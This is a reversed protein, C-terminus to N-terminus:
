FLLDTARTGESSWVVTEDDTAPKLYEPDDFTNNIPQTFEESLASTPRTVGLEFGAGSTKVSTYNAFPAAGLIIFLINNLSRETLKNDLPVSTLLKSQAGNSANKYFNGDVEDEEETGDDVLLSTESAYEFTRTLSDDFQIKFKVEKAKTRISSKGDIIINANEFEVDCPSPPGKISCILYILISLFCNILALIKYVNVMQYADDNDTSSDLTLDGLLVFGSEHPKPLERKRRLIIGDHEIYDPVDKRDSFNFVITNDQEPQQSWTKKKVTWKPLASALGSQSEENAGNGNKETNILNKELERMKTPPLPPSSKMVFSKVENSNETSIKEHTVKMVNNNNNNSNNNNNNINSIGNGCGNNTINNIIQLIKITKPSAGDVVTKNACKVDSDGDIGVSLCDNLENATIESMSRSINYTHNNKIENRSSSIPSSNLAEEMENDVSTTDKDDSKQLNSSKIYSKPTSSEVHINNLKSSLLSIMPSSPDFSSATPKKLLTMKSKFTAVKGAIENGIPRTQPNRKRNASAEFIRLTQKVIEHPPREDEDILSTLRKPKKDSREKASQIKDEISIDKPGKVYIHPEDDRANDIHEKEVDREWASHDYRLIAEVSRARKLNMRNDSKENSRGIRHHYTETPPPYSELLFNDIGNGKADSYKNIEEEDLLNNLSTTRRLFQNLSPRQKNITSQRLTLSLYRSKLKTVFGPGYKFDYDSENQEDNVKEVM